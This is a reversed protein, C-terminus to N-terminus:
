FVEFIRRSELNVRGPECRRRTKAQVQINNRWRCGPFTCVQKFFDFINEDGPMFILYIDCGDHNYVCVAKLEKAQM